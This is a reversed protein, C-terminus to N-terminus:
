GATVVLTGKEVSDGLKTFGGSGIFIAEGAILM